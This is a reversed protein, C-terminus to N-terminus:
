QKPTFHLSHPGYIRRDEISGRVFTAALILQEAAVHTQMDANLQQLM